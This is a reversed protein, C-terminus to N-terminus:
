LSNLKEIATKMWADNGGGDISLKMLMRKMWDEEDNL